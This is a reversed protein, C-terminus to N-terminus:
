VQDEVPYDVVAHRMIRRAAAWRQDQGMVDWQALEMAWRVETATLVATGTGCTSRAVVVYDRGCDAQSKV